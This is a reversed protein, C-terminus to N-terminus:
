QFLRNDFIFPEVTLIKIQNFDKHHPNILINHDGQTVVSPIKCLAYKGEKVFTDGFIQTRKLAPFVNWKPPLESMTVEMKELSDDCHITMMMYDNPLMALNYHVAVEAMALSRNEACYILETGISNWRGGKIAAGKGSLEKSYKARTLRFIKM